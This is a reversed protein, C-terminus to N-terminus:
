NNEAEEVTAAIAIIADMKTVRFVERVKPSMGAAVLRVGKKQCRVHHTVIMGLGSSDIYPCATLDLINKVPPEEGPATELDLMKNLTLPPLSSYADRVTFPGKFRLIVTGPSKGPGREISFPGSNWTQWAFTGM